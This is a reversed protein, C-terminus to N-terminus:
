DYSLGHKHLFKQNNRWNKEVRVKLEVFAPTSSMEEIEQRAATGIQKIMGGGKGIVIGKHSEREVILQAHIYLMGNERLKYDDVHVYLGYPIEDDLFNFAAARILDEAIDREYTETVQDDPFYKPGEPLLEIIKSLLAEQGLVATASIRTQDAFDLLEAYARSNREIAAPALQDIKNLVLLKPTLAAKEAVEQALQYDEEDPLQSVDAVFLILDADLFAYRAERNIFESLKYSGKHLGPTDVFIIQAKETTLIGLQRRRTTQPKRSVAAIKQGLYGNLLTSKGVNPKGLLAVYGSKFGGFDLEALTAM